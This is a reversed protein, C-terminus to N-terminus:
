VSAGDALFHSVEGAVQSPHDFWPMHGSADLVRLEGHPLVDLARRWIDVSGTPDATGYVCLTPTQIAALEADEFTLGARFASGRVLTRVMDRENRMSATERGLAVRWEVFAEPIRGGDLSPGHGNHRLISRVREPKNVLRIMVAGVPSALLRIFGPVRIEPVLPSSGLLAV